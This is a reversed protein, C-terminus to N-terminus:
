VGIYMVCVCADCACSIIDCHFPSIHILYIEHQNLPLSLSIQSFRSDRDALLAYKPLNSRDEMATTSSDTWHVEDAATLVGPCTALSEALTLSFRVM